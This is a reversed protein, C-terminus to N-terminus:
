LCEILGEERLSECFEAIDSLVMAEETSFVEQMSNFIDKEEKNGDLNEWIFTGVSNLEHVKNKKPDIIVASEDIIQWPLGSVRKYKM